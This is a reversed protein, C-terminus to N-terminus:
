IGFAQRAGAHAERPTQTGSFCEKESMVEYRAADEAAKLEQRAQQPDFVGDILEKVEKM